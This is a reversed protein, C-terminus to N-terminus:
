ETRAIRITSSGNESRVTAVYVGPALTGGVLDVRHTGAAHFGTSVDSVKRGLVDFLAVHIPGSRTLEFELSARDRFPNPFSRLRLSSASEPLEEVGTGTGGRVFVYASGASEGGDDSNSAGVLARDGDIGIAEGFHDGIGADSAALKQVQTWTGGDFEFVYVSGSSGGSDDDDPAGIIAYDGSLAVTRGFADGAAGDDPLLKQELQWDTGDFRFVHAGGAGAGLDDDQPAGVLIVGDDLAVSFGFKDQADEPTANIRQELIFGLTADFRYIYVAGFNQAGPGADPAGVAVRADTIAAGRGFAAVGTGFGALTAFSEESLAKLFGWTNGNETSYVFAQGVPGGAGEAEPAGVIGFKGSVSVSRGYRYGATAGAAGPVLKAVQIWNGVVQNFAYVAGSNNGGFGEDPAGVLAITGDHSVSWGFRDDLEGDDATLKQAFQWEMENDNWNFAYVAGASLNALGNATAGILAINGKISGSDGFGIGAVADNANLKQTEVWAVPQSWATSASWVSVLAALASVFCRPRISGAFSQPLLTPHM